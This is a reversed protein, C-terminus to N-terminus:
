KQDIDVFTITKIYMIYLKLAFSTILKLIIILNSMHRPTHTVHWFSFGGGIKYHTHHWPWLYHCACKNFTIQLASKRIKIEKVRFKRIEQHETEKDLLLSVLNMCCIEGFKQVRAFDAYLSFVESVPNCLEKRVAFNKAWNNSPWSCHFRSRDNRCRDNKRM